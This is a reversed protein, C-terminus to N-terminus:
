NTGEKLITIAGKYVKVDNEFKIIYYYTGDPLGKGYTNTGAWNNDYSESTFVEQGERNVVVVQTNPYNEINQIIWRDNFGDDNPTMLNSITVNYDLVVTVTMTDVDSCGNMDTGTLTYVTTVVPSASPDSISANTLGVSPFWSWTIVGIGSGELDINSGLSLNIDSGASVSPNAFVSVDVSDMAFCGTLTDSITLSVTGATILTISQTTDTTSWLYDFGGAVGTLSVSDGICFQLPGSATITSSPLANVLVTVTATDLCGLNSTLLLSSVFTGASGYTHAPAPSLSNNGDGFDWQNFQIFGSLITSTNTFTTTNGYCVTDASFVAVPKPYVVVSTPTSSIPGCVGSQVIALYWTTDVLNLYTQSATTNVIPSWTLGGDISSQWTQIAGSYGTLNLTGSNAGECGATAGSIIGGGSAPDVTITDINSVTGLCVGSNVFARYYTTATLNLYSQSATTNSLAFWTVGDISTEWNIISGLYGVLNLTGSNAGGCVTDNASLTGAIPPADITITATLSTDNSCVGNAVIVRFITTTLVNLYNETATTNAIATWTTGGDVSSEWFQIAGLYGFLNLSGSNAGGCANTGGSISGGVSVADVTLTATSSLVSACSNNQVIARFVTTVTINLYVYTPTTNSISIWNIGGDTSYEWGMVNGTHGSLTLTGSNNGFCVNASASIIGGVSPAEVTITDISSLVASCAGSTVNAQYYTTAVINLYSQSTTTNAINTWTIGDSSSQWNSVSGTQGSLTLTGSNSGSCVTDNSSVTGGVSLPSVTITVTGSNTAACAGSKVNARYVTTATLNLYSESTTTNAINTYTAGGDTSFEWYLVTGTNGSLTLTGSNAGSCVTAAASITGGVSVPNVVISDITSYIASCGASTVLVRFYRTATLNLYAQTTTTNAINTWTVGANTSYEWRTVSGTNGALTLNGSNTGSCVTTGGSVTGGVSPPNVTITAPTTNYVSDCAGSKVCVRYKTTQTLNLYSQSNATNAIDTWVSFPSVSFQWRKITGVRGAVTSNVNGSNVGSCVTTSGTLTGAVSVPNITMVASSSTDSACVGNQVQARYKTPITLNLYSQSTTTNSISIWTTGGDVSYEWNLVSGTHGALTLSGSNIGICVNTGGSVTGGDSPAVSNVLYGVTADNTTNIDTALTTYATFTYAGALSLNAPVVFTYAITTNSTFFPFTVGLDTVAAGGNITYSLDFPVGSLDTLGINKVNVTVNSTASLSCGSVPATIAIVSVDQAFAFKGLFLLFSLTFIKRM